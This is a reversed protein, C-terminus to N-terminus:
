LSYTRWNNSSVVRIHTVFVRQVAQIVPVEFDTMIYDPDVPQQLKNCRSEIVRFLTEYTDQTKRQLFAYVCAITRDALQALIIDVQLMHIFLYVNGFQQDEIM